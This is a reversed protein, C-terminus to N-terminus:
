KPFIKDYKALDNVIEKIQTENYDVLGLDSGGDSKRLRARPHKNFGSCKVTIVLKDDNYDILLESVGNFKVYGRPESSGMYYYNINYNSRFQNLLERVKSIKNLIDQNERDLLNKM